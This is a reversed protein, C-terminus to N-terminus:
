RGAAGGQHPLRGQPVFFVQVVAGGTAAKLRETIKVRHERELVYLWTPSSVAVTLATGRLGSPRARRAVDAGVLEAWQAQIKELVVADGMGLRSLVDDLVAGVPRPPSRHAAIEGPAEEPGYWDELAEERRRESPTPRRGDHTFRSFGSRDTWHASKGPKSGSGTGHNV